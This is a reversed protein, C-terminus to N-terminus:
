RSPGTKQKALAFLEERTKMSAQWKLEAFGACAARNVKGAV